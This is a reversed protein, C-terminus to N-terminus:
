LGLLDATPVFIEPLFMEMEAYTSSRMLPSNTVDDRCFSLSMMAIALLSCSPMETGEYHGNLELGTAISYCTLVIKLCQPFATKTYIAMDGYLVYTWGKCRTPM